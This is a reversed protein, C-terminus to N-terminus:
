LLEQRGDSLEKLCWNELREFGNQLRIGVWRAKIYQLLAQRADELRARADMTIGEERLLLKGVLLEYISAATKETVSQITLSLLMELVDNSFGIGEILEIFSKSAAVEDFTHKLIHKIRDELPIIMSRVHDAWRAGRESALRSRIQIIGKMVGAANSPGTRACKEVLLEKQVEYPLTGIEKTPWTEDFRDLVVARANQQLSKANVDPESAFVFIRTCRHRCTKCCARFNHCMDEIRAEIERHMVDHGLYLACKWLDMAVALDFTRTLASFSGTYLYALTFHLATPTFPPSPLTFLTSDADLYPSLLIDSFYTCRSALIARHAPFITKEDATALSDSSGQDEGEVTNLDALQVHVDAFLKSRWM